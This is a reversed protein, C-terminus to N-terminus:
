GGDESLASRARFAWAEREVLALRCAELGVSRGGKEVELRGETGEVLRFAELVVWNEIEFEVALGAM